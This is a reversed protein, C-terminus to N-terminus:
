ITSYKKSDQIHKRLNKVASVHNPYLGNNVFLSILQADTLKDFGAERLLVIAYRLDGIAAMHKNSPGKLAKRLHIFVPKDNILEAHSLRDSFTPCTLISRDISVAKFLADQSGNRVQEVLAGLSQHFLMISLINRQMVMVLWILHKKDIKDENNDYWQDLEAGDKCVELISQQPNSSKGVRIIPEQMGLLVFLYALQKTFSLEYINAWSYYEGLIEKIRNPKSKALESFERKQSRVEPLKKALESFQEPTLKKQPPTHLM